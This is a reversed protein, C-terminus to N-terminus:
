RSKSTPAPTPAFTVVHVTRAEVGDTVKTGAILIIDGAGIESYRAKVDGDTGEKTITASDSLTVNLSDGSAKDKLTIGDKDAKVVTGLIVVRVPEKEATTVILRKADLISNNTVFGMAIIYDGIGVDSFKISKSTTDIKVFSANTPDLSIQQIEGTTSKIQLGTDTKDTITGIYAKPNNLAEQIKEQVKQRITDSSTATDQAATPIQTLALIATVVFLIYIIKKM